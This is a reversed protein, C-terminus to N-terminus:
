GANAVASLLSFRITQHSTHRHHQLIQRNGDIVWAQSPQEACAVSSGRKVVHISQAFLAKKHLTALASNLRQPAM